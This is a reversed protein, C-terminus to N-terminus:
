SYALYMERAIEQWDTQTNMYTHFTKIDSAESAEVPFVDVFAFTWAHIVVTWNGKPVLIGKNYIALINDNSDDPAPQQLEVTNVAYIKSPM